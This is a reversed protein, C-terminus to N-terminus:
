ARRRERWRPGPFSGPQMGARQPTAGPAGEGSVAACALTEVRIGALLGEGPHSRLTVCHLGGQRSRDVEVSSGNWAELASRALDADGRAELRAVQAALSVLAIRHASILIGGIALGLVVLVAPMVIAFEATVSGRDDGLRSARERAAATDACRRDGRPRAAGNM